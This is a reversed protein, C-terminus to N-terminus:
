RSAFHGCNWPAAELNGIGGNVRDRWQPLAHWFGGGGALEREM